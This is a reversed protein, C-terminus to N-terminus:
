ADDDPFWLDDFIFASTARRRIHVIERSSHQASLMEWDSRQHEMEDEYLMRIKTDSDGLGRVDHLLDILDIPGMAAFKANNEDRELSGLVDLIRQSSTLAAVVLTDSPVDTGPFGAMCREATGKLFEKDNLVCTWALDIADRLNKSEWPQGISAREYIPLIRESCALSFVHSAQPSLSSTSRKIEDLCAFVYTEMESRAM